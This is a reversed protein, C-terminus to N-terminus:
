ARSLTIETLSNDLASTLEMGTHILVCQDAIRDDITVPLVLQRGNQSTVAKDGDVLGVQKALKSNIYCIPNNAIATNHLSLARRQISDGAYVHLESVRVLGPRKSIMTIPNDLSMKNSPTIDGIKNKLEDRIQESDSYDYGVLDFYNGIVRFIKWAPKAEGLPPVTANFSQWRGEVNVFTGSTETFPTIPLIVNAYQEAERSQYISFSAVFEARILASSAESPNASDSEPELNLLLYAALGTGFMAKANLGSESTKRGGYDRHPLAGALWAGSSNASDSLFGFNSDSLTSIATSLASIMTANEHNIVQPGLIVSSKKAQLLNKAIAKHQESVDATQYLEVLESPLTKTSEGQLAKAIGALEDVFEIPSVICREAIAMFFEYDVSNICMLKAGQMVAKRIRHAAIPQDLRINSGILLLADNEELEKITQGLWQFVPADSDATFDNQRVRHDINSIELDRLLKQFLYLEEITSTASALAGVQATGYQSMVNRLGNVTFDLATEWDAEQWEGKVKIMPTTLREESNLAEYSFRDRDSLWSENIEENDKPVIRMVKNNRIHVHLNSGLCDHPAITEVQSMEWSRSSFRFPKSTLAGVPCLDIVNGSMESNISQEIYTGIEMHEGRGTAGLERIGAIEEGFRVCRTCHICRTMETSILPGLNKDLVVRKNEGYQSLSGGYGMAVDQLECEGGQDCIPCDLPHNILLFEMVGKQATIAKSSKTFVKMGDTVPTACAPLPKGVKEVEILCMRCNAAISLKKHYCFRPIDIGADDAAEIVMAGERTEVKQGDIEITVM